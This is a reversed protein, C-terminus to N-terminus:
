GFDGVRELRGAHAGPAKASPALHKYFNSYFM